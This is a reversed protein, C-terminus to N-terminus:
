AGSRSLSRAPVAASAAAGTRLLARTRRRPLRRVRRAASPLLSPARTRRRGSSRGWDVVIMRESEGAWEVYALAIAGHPGTAIAELLKQSQIAEAYGRRELAFEGDDISRSVDAALVVAADVEVPADAADACRGASAALAMLVTTVALRLRLGGM